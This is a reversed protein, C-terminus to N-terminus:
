GGAWSDHAYEYAACADVMNKEINSDFRLRGSRNEPQSNFVFAYRETEPWRFLLFSPSVAKRLCTSSEDTLPPWVTPRKTPYISRARPTMWWPAAAARAVSTSVTYSDSPRGHFRITHYTKASSDGGLHRFFKWIGDLCIEVRTLGRLVNGLNCRVGVFRFVSAVPFM